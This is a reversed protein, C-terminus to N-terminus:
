EQKENIIDIVTQLAANYGDDHCINQELTGYAAYYPNDKYSEALGAVKERLEKLLRTREATAGDSRIRQALPSQEFARDLGILDKM